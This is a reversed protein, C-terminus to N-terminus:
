RQAFEAVSNLRNKLSLDITYNGIKVVFGGLVNRDVENSLTIKKSFIGELARKLEVKVAETMPEASIATATAYGRKSALMERYAKSIQPIYATRGADVVQNTFNVFEDPARAVNAAYALISKKLDPPMVPSKLVKRTEEVEFLQDCLDLFTIAKDASNTDKESISLLAKAYRNAIFSSGM